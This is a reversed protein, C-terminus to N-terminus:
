GLASAGKANSMLSFSSLRQCVFVVNFHRTQVFKRRALHHMYLYATPFDQQDVEIALNMGAGINARM